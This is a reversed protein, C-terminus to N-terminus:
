RNKVLSLHHGEETGTATIMGAPLEVVFHAGRVGPSFRWPPFSSIARLIEGTSSVFLLDLPFLMGMTHVARCPSLVLGQTGQELSRKGLLGQLRRWFTDALVAERALVRGTEKNIISLKTPKKM